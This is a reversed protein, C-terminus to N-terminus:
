LGYKISSLMAQVDQAPMWGVARSHDGRCRINKGCLTVIPMAKIEQESFATPEPKPIKGSAVLAGGIARGFEYMSLEGHEAFYYGDRGHPTGANKRTADFLHMYLDALDAISVHVWINKGLGLMGASNRRAGITLFLPILKSNQNQAGVDVLAGSATGWVNGPCVIHARVYGEKDAAVLAANTTRHPTTLPAGEIVDADTDSYIIESANMGVENDSIISAGSTHIIVPPFGTAQFRKKAGALITHMPTDNEVTAISFIVDAAVALDHLPAVDTHSGVATKLGLSELKQAKESSRVLAMIAFTATNPHKLLRDVVTGGVYGTAGIVLIQTSM